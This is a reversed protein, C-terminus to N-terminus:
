HGTKLHLQLAFDGHDSSFAVFLGVLGEPLQFDDRSIVEPVTFSFRYPTEALLAKAQGGVVNAIEGACDRILADDLTDRAGTLMQAAFARATAVPFSLVLCRITPSDIRLLAAVDGPSQPAIGQGIARVAIHTSVMEELAARTAAIFPAVLQDRIEENVPETEMYDNKLAEL